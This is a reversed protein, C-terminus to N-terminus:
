RRIIREVDENKVDVLGKDNFCLCDGDKNIEIIRLEQGAIESIPGWYYNAGESPNQIVKCWYIEM